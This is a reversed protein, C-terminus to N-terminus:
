NSTEEYSLKARLDALEKELEEKQRTMEEQTAQLEESNQRMEEEQSRLEEAQIQSVELLKRTKENNQYVYLSSAIVEAVKILFNETEKDMTKFSALEMVGLVEDNNILPVIILTVPKSDGLGSSITTYDKPLNRLHLLEKELFIQGVLGEGPAVEKQLYKKRNFAYCAKLVLKNSESDHIFLSGQNAKLYKVIFMLVQDFLEEPNDQYTRLTDTLQTVGNNFWSRYETEEQVKLMTEKMQILKGALTGDNMLKKDGDMGEWQVTFNGKTIEEVFHSSNEINDILKKVVVGADPTKTKDIYEKFILENNKEQLSVILDVNKKNQSHILYIVLLLIPIGLLGLLIQLTINISILVERDKVIRANEKAMYENFPDSFTVYKEWLPTGKDQKIIDVAAEMDGNQRLEIVKWMLDYYDNLEQKVMNLKAPRYDLERLVSDLLNYENAQSRKTSKYTEIFAPNDTLLYGRVGMDLSNLYSLFNNKYTMVQDMQKLQTDTSAQHVKLSIIFFVNLAVLILIIGLFVSYLKTTFHNKLKTFM